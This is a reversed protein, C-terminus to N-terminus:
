SRLVSHFTCGSRARLWRFGLRVFLRSHTCFDDISCFMKQFCFFFSKEGCKRGNPRLYNRSLRKSQGRIGHTVDESSSPVKDLFLMLSIIM